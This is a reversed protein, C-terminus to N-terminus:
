LVNTRITEAIDNATLGYEKQLFQQSGVQGFREKVGIRFVKSPYDFGITELIASGLGGIINHNDCTVILKTKKAYEIVLEKDIPKITFMDIVSVKIGEKKLIDYALLAENLMIGTAFIVADNGEKLVNGKGIIFSSGEEYIQVMQKRVIRIYYLGDLFQTQKLIDKFMVNDSIELVVSNPILRMLGIDEFPMHTGGNHSASVGADSGIIKVNLGAYGISLFVQDFCRRTVFPGFSHVYPSLGRLSLGAAIGIMNQEMIGVNIFRNPFQNMFGNTKIAGMLDAEVLVINQNRQALEVMQDNYCKRLEVIGMKFVKEIEYGM